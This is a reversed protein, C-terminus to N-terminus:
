TQIKLLENNINPEAILKNSIDKEVCTLEEYFNEKLGEKIDEIMYNDFLEQERLIHQKLIDIEKTYGDTNELDNLISNTANKIMEKYKNEKIDNKIEMVRNKVIKKNEKKGKEIRYFLFLTSLTILMTPIFIFVSFDVEMDNEILFPIIIKSLLLSVLGISAINLTLGTTYFNNNYEVKEKLSKNSVIIDDLENASVQSIMKELYIKKMINDLSKKDIINSLFNYNTKKNKSKIKELLDKINKM